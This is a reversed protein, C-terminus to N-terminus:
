TNRNSTLDKLLQVVAQNVHGSLSQNNTGGGINRGIHYADYGFNNSTIGRGTFQNVRERLGSLLIETMSDAPGGANNIAKGIM